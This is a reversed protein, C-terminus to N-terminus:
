DNPSTSGKRSAEWRAMVRPFALKCLAYRVINVSEPNLQNCIAQIDEPTVNPHHKSLGAQLIVPVDEAKMEWWEQFSKLSRGLKSEAVIVASLPFEVTYEKGAVQLNLNPIVACEVTNSM